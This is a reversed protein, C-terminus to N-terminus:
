GGAMRAGFMLIIGGLFAVAWRKPRNIGFSQEWMQPIFRLQYTGSLRASVYSGILIGLVLMWQWDIKPAKSIFYPLKEVHEPVFLKEILGATMVFTTSAGLPKVTLFAFWSLLGVIVGAVYPSWEQKKLWSM